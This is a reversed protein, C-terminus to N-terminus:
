AIMGARVEFNSEDAAQGTGTSYFRYYWTGAEDADVDVHYVGTSDKVVEVDVGYQKTAVNGSPDRYQVFADTPDLEDGNADTLTGDVTVLDGVSYTNSM